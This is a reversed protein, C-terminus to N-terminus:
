RFFCIQWHCGSRRNQSLFLVLTRRLYLWKQFSNRNWPFQTRGTSHTCSRTNKVVEDKQAAWADAGSWPNLKSVSRSTTYNQLPTPVLNLFRTCCESTIKLPLSWFNGITRALVLTRRLYLWKQFSTRNWPFQTRDTSHTWLVTLARGVHLTKYSMKKKPQQPM